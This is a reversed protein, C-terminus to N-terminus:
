VEIGCTIRLGVIYKLFMNSNSNSFYVTLIRNPSSSSIGFKLYSGCVKDQFWM